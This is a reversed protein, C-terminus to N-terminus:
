NWRGRYFGPGGYWYTPLRTHAAEWEILEPPRYGPLFGYGHWSRSPQRKTHPGAASATAPPALCAAVAFIFMANLVRNGPRARVVGREVGAAQLDISVVHDEQCMAHEKESLAQEYASQVEM